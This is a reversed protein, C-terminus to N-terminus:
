GRIKQSNQSSERLDDYVSLAGAGYEPPRPNLDRDSPRNDQGLKEHNEDAKLVAKFYAV